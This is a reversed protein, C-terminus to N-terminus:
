KLRCNLGDKNLFSIQLNEPIVVAYTKFVKNLYYPSGDKFTGAIPWKKIVNSLAKFEAEIQKEYLVYIYCPRVSLSTDTPCCIDISMLKMEPPVSYKSTKLEYGRLTNLAEWCEQEMVKEFGHFDVLQKEFLLCSNLNTVAASM